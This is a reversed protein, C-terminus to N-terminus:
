YKQPEFCCIYHTTKETKACVSKGKSLQCAPLINECRYLLITASRQVTYLYSSSTTRWQKKNETQAEEPTVHQVEEEDIVKKHKIEYLHRFYEKIAQVTDKDRIMDAAKEAIMVQTAYSDGSTSSPIISADVIRLGKIGRVRFWVFLLIYVYTVLAFGSRSFSAAIYCGMKAFTFERERESYTM